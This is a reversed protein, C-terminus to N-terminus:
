QTAATLANSVAPYVSSVYMAPNIGPPVDLEVKAVPRVSWAGKTRSALFVNTCDLNVEVGQVRGHAGGSYEVFIDVDDEDSELGAVAPLSATDGVFTWETQHWGPPGVYYVMVLPHWREPCTDRETSTLWLATVRDSLPFARWSYFAGSMNTNHRAWEITTRM